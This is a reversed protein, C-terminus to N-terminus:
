VSFVYYQADEPYFEHYSELPILTFADKQQILRRKNRSFGKGQKLSPNIMYLINRAYHDLLYFKMETNPSSQFQVIAKAGDKVKLIANEEQCVSLGLSFRGSIAGALILFSDETNSTVGCRAAFHACLDPPFSLNLTREVLMSICCISTCLSLTTEEDNNFIRQIAQVSDEAIYLRHAM